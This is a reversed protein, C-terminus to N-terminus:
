GFLTEGVYGGPSIGPPVAFLGSGVHQIYENLADSAALRTQIPVFGTRPDRQYCIFFLGGDLQGTQSALGDTFSYGRRLIRIGGNTAPAAVRIHAGVPIVPKGNGTTAGLDVPDHEASGGLPAGSLKHRGITAEQDGLGSRDWTEIRMRIRRAVLYSGGAMWTPDDGDGVWIDSAMTPLDDGHVNNTGDLFGLLNRPTTQSSSTSSTRGFGLQSWRIAVLGRGIRALDRIAHFAVQPDEACAQVCLDGGSITPDLQDHAFAPLDALQAPRQAALGFRDKGPEGFLGPGFGFTLTLRAPGLGLAEGTDVPPSLPNSSATGPDGIPLGATMAAAATTWSKLLGQLASRDDTLVDFAAFQLREQAPTAIGAQNPGHFPVVEAQPDPPPVPATARGLGFGAAGGLAVGAGAALGGVLLRRRSIGPDPGPAPDPGHAPEGAPGAETPSNAM